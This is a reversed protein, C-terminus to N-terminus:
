GSSNEDERDTQDVISSTPLLPDVDMEQILVETVDKPETSKRLHKKLKRHDELATEGGEQWMRVWHRVTKESCPIRYSIEEVSLGADWFATIRARKVISINPAM